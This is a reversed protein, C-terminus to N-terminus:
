TRIRAFVRSLNRSIPQESETATKRVSTIEPRNWAKAVHPAISRISDNFEQARWPPINTNEKQNPRPTPCAMAASRRPRLLFLFCQQQFNGTFDQLTGTAGCEPWNRSLPIYAMTVVKKHARVSHSYGLNVVSFKVGVCANEIKTITVDLLTKLAITNSSPKCMDKPEREPPAELCRFNPKFLITLAVEFGAHDM